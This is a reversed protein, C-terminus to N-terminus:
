FYTMNVHVGIRCSNNWLDREGKDRKKKGEKKKKKKKKKKEKKEQSLICSPCFYICACVCVCVRVCVCACVCACVCVHVCVCVCVFVWRIDNMMMARKTKTKRRWSGGMRCCSKM